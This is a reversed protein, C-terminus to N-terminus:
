NIFHSGLSWKAYGPSIQTIVVAASITDNLNGATADRAISIWLLDPLGSSRRSITESVDIDFEVYEQTNVGGVTVIETLHQEGTISAPAGGESTALTDGSRTIGFNVFWEIDGAGLAFFSFRLRLPVSTDLDLPSYVVLGSRTITNNPFSNEIRGVGLDLADSTPSDLVFIDQNGPSNGFPQFNNYDWSIIGIPRARGFFEPWGDANSEMRDTHLKFQEFIPATTIATKISIRTWFYATGLSPPDSKVQNALILHNFRIQDSQVREFINKAHPFYNPNADTSMHNFEVWSAGNWYETVIEGAGPVAATQIAAKIGSFQLFDIADSLMSALYLRNNAAIGPFTFTSGSFSRAAASVDVFVNSTDETYVLMGRTYSDGGGLATEYGIEPTGVHLEKMFTMGEDGPVVDNFDVLIKSIDMASIRASSMQSNSVLVTSLTDEQLIDWTTGGHIEVGIGNIIGGNNLRMANTVDDIEAIHFDITGGNAFFLNVGGECLVAALTIKGSDAQFGTLASTGVGHIIIKATGTATSYIGRTLTSALQLNRCIIATDVGITKIGELSSSFSIDAYRNTSSASSDLICAHNTVGVLTLAKLGSNANSGTFLPNNIDSASVICRDRAIGVITVGAPIVMPVEVYTGPFVQIVDGSLASSIATAVSSYQGGTKAVILTNGEQTRLAAIPIHNYKAILTDTTELTVGGFDNWTLATGTFTFDTSFVADVGNLELFFSASGSPEQSLTFATQGNSSITLVDRVAIGVLHDDVYGKTTVTDNDATGTVVEIQEPRFKSM